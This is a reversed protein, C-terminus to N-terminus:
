YIVMTKIDAQMKESDEKLSRIKARYFHHMGRQGMDNLMEESPISPDNLSIRPIMQEEVEKTQKPKVSKQADFKMSSEKLINEQM